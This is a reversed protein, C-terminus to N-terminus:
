LSGPNDLVSLASRAAALERVIDPRRVIALCIVQASGSM